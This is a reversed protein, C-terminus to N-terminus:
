NYRSTNPETPADDIRFPLILVVSEANEELEGEDVDEIPAFLFFDAQSPTVDMMVTKHQPLQLLREVLEAVLM